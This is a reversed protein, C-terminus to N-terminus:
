YRDYFIEHSLRARRYPSLAQVAVLLGQEISSAKRSPTPMQKHSVTVQFSPDKKSDLRDQMAQKEPILATSM